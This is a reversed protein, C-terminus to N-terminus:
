SFRYGMGFHEPYEVILDRELQAIEENRIREDDLRRREDIERLAERGDARARAIRRLHDDESRNFIARRRDYTDVPQRLARDRQHIHYLWRQYRPHNNVHDIFIQPNDPSLHQAIARVEDGFNPRSLDPYQRNRQFEMAMEHLADRAASGREYAQIHFHMSNDKQREAWRAQDDTPYVELPGDHLEEELRREEEREERRRNEEDERRMEEREQTIWFDSDGEDGEDSDDPDLGYQPGHNKQEDPVDGKQEDPVDGKQEDVVVTRRRPPPLRRGDEEDNERRRRNSM